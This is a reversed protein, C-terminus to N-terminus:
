RVEAATRFPTGGSVPCRSRSSGARENWTSCSPAVGLREPPCQRCGRTSDPPHTSGCSRAAPEPPRTPTSAVQAMSCSGCGRCDCHDDAPRAINWTSGFSRKQETGNPHGVERRSVASSGRRASGGIFRRWPEVCEARESHQMPPSYDGAKGAQYLGRVCLARCRVPSMSGFRVQGVLGLSGPGEHPAEQRPATLMVAAEEHPVEHSAHSGSGASTPLQSQSPRPELSDSRRAPRRRSPSRNPAAPEPV